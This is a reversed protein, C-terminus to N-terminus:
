ETEERPTWGGLLTDIAALDRANPDPMLPPHEADYRAKVVWSPLEARLLVVRAIIMPTTHEDQEVVWSRVRKVLRDNTYVVKELADELAKQLNTADAYQNQAAGSEGQWKNIQRWFFFEVDLPVRLLTHDPYKERVTDKVAKQYTALVQNKHARFQHKGGGRTIGFTSAAWPEPNIGEICIIM